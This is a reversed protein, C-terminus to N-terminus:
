YLLFLTNGKLKKIKTQNSTPKFNPSLLCVENKKLYPKKENSYTKKRKNQERNQKKNKIIQKQNKKRKFIIKSHTKRKEKM